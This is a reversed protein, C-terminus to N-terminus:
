FRGAADGILGHGLYIFDKGTESEFRLKLVRGRGRIKLRSTVVSELSGFSSLNSEDVLALKSRRYAQQPTSSPTKSFDWYGSLLISSEHIPDYGLESSGEWGEETERCFTLIYPATKQLIIDDMFDYGTEAYSLYDANGWDLFTNSDFVAMTMKSSSFDRVFFVVDINANTLPSTQTSIVDDSGSIVDNSGAVVDFAAEDSGYGDYFQAGVIYDTAVASDAVTWPYFAQLPVDLILVKNFKNAISEDNNSYLWIIKKNVRDYSATAKEKAENSIQNWFTQITSVSINEENADGFQDFSMTHIGHKSWWFPVGEAATFTTSSIIGMTTIPRVSYAVPSFVNDVGSIQWVGNDAFVFISNRFAYLKRIQTADPIVIVGGDDALLDSLEESTPDNRQLFEGISEMDQLIQSFYVKGANKSSSLGAFFVRSAFTTVTTFRSSETEVPLTTLPSVDNRDKDFLNLIYRGNGSLSTGVYIKEWEAKSFAGNSDKGSYWPHTLPPWTTAYGYTTLVTDNWGTNYTDYKRGDSIASNTVTESYTTRDGQWSFDRVRCNIQTVTFTGDDEESIYVPNISDSVVVLNGLISAFECRDSAISGTPTEYALLDVSNVYEQASYPISTKDYFYLRGNVQVVLYQKDSNNRVNRWEGFHINTSASLTFSSLANNSEVAVAKRRRRSGDRFLECNLEDVSANEPFTLEGAETILGKIFTNVTRQLYNPM